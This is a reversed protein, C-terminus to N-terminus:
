TLQYFTLLKLHKRPNEYTPYNEPIDSSMTEFCYVTLDVAAWPTRYHVQVTDNINFTPSGTPYLFKVLSASTQATAYHILCTLAVQYLKRPRM